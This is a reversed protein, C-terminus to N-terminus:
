LVFMYSSSISSFNFCCIYLHTHILRSQFLFSHSSLRVHFHSNSWYCKEKKKLFVKIEEEEKKILVDTWRCPTVSSKKSNTGGWGNMWANEKERQSKKEEEKSKRAKKVGVCVVFSMIIHVNWLSSASHM